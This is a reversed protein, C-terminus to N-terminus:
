KGVEKGQSQEDERGEGKRRRESKVETMEAGERGGKEPYWRGGRYATSLAGGKPRCPALTGVSSMLLLSARPPPQASPHAWLNGM